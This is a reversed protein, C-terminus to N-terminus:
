MDVRTNYSCYYVLWVRQGMKVCKLNWICCFSTMIANISRMLAWQFPPPIKTHSAMIVFELYYQAILNLSIHNSTDKAYNLSLKFFHYSASCNAPVTRSIQLLIQVTM